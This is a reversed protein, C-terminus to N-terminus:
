ASREDFWRIGASVALPVAVLPAALVALGAFFAYVIARRRPAPVLAGLVILVGALRGVISGEVLLLVVGASVDFIVARPPAPMTRPLDELVGAVEFHSEAALVHGVREELGVISLTGNAYQERLERTADARGTLTPHATARRARVLGVVHRVGLAALVIPALAFGILTGLGMLMYLVVVFVFLLGAV